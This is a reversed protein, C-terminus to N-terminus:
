PAPLPRDQLLHGATELDTVLTNIWGGKIAAAIADFKASGGAVGIRRPVVKLDDPDIGFVRDNFPSRILKGDRDFFRYCVDGVAGLEHLKQQHEPGIANGSQQLLPSPQVSGIGVIAVSLRKWATRVGTVAPDDFLARRVSPSQVLGPTPLFLPRAGTLTAFRDLLRTANVQVHADGVGGVLQTVVEVALGTKPRMAEVTALLTASWSSIGVADGSTLTEVLYPAAAAGLVQMVEGSRGADVVVSDLLGYRRELEQEIDTYVGDPLTVVTRVIGVDAAQRLLRSVRSQSLNLDAAIQPQKIGQEHYMRAIKALLRLQDVGLDAVGPRVPDVGM